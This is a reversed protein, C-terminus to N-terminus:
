TDATLSVSSSARSLRDKILMVRNECLTKIHRSITFRSPLEYTRDFLRLFRYLEKNTAVSFTLASSIIRRCLQNTANETLQERPVLQKKTLEGRMDFSRQSDAELLLGHAKCAKDFYQNCFQLQFNRSM